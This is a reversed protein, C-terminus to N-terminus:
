QFYTHKHMCHNAGLFFFFALELLGTLREVKWTLDLLLPCLRSPLQRLPLM